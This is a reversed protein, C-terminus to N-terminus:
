QWYSVTGGTVLVQYQRIKLIETFSFESLSVTVTYQTDKIVNGVYKIKTTLLNSNKDFFKFTIELDSIDKYPKVICKTNLSIEDSNDLMVDSNKASRTFLQPTSTHSSGGGTNSNNNTNSCGKLMQSLLVGGGGIFFIIVLVIVAKKWAKM